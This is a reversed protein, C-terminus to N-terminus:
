VRVSPPASMIQAPDNFVVHTPIFSEEVFSTKGFAASVIELRCQHAQEALAM